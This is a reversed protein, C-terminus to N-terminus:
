PKTDARREPHISPLMTHNRCKSFCGTIVVVQSIYSVGAELQNAARHSTHERVLSRPKTKVMAPAAVHEGYSRSQVGPGERPFPPPPLLHRQEDVAIAVRYGGLRAPTFNVKRRDGQMSKQDVLELQLKCAMNGQASTYKRVYQVEFESFVPFYAWFGSCLNPVISFQRIVAGM